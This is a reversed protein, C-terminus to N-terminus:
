KSKGESGFSFGAMRGEYSVVSDWGDVLGGKVIIRTYRGSKDQMLAQTEGGPLVVVAALRYDTLRVPVAPALSSPQGPALQEQKGTAPSVSADSGPHSWRWVLRSISVWSYVLLCIAGLLSALFWKSKFLSQRSDVPQEKGGSGDYSKYMPFIDKDYRQWPSSSVLNKKVPKREYTEIRYASMIGLSKLKYFYVVLECVGKIFRNLSEFDQIMLLLDCTRGTDDIFHRHMRFFQMHEASLKHEASWFLWCEDVVVLDGPRVFSEVLRDPAIWPVGLPRGEFYSVHLGKWDKHSAELLASGVDFGAERVKMLDPLLSQFAVKGFTKGTRLTFGSAFEALADLPIWDPVEFRFDVSSDGPFFGAQKLDDNKFFVVQGFKSSDHGKKELYAYIADQNIGSINTVVRRGSAIAPLVVSKVGEYSKGSGM